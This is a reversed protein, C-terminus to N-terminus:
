RNKDTCLTKYSCTRNDTKTQVCHKIVVHETIQKTQVCHKVSLASNVFITESVHVSLLSLHTL